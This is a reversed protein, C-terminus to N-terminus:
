GQQNRCSLVDQRTFRQSTEQYMSRGLHLAQVSPTCQRDHSVSLLGGQSLQWRRALHAAFAGDNMAPHLTVYTHTQRLPM